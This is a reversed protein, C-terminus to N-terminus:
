SCNCNCARKMCLSFSIINLFAIIVSVVFQISNVAVGVKLEFLCKGFDYKDMHSFIHSIRAADHQGILCFASNRDIKPHRYTGVLEWNSWSIICSVICLIFSAMSLSLHGLYLNPSGFKAALSGVISNLLFVSATWIASYYPCYAPTDCYCWIGAGLIVVSLLIEVLCVRFMGRNEKRPFRDLWLPSYYDSSNSHYTPPPPPAHLPPRRATAYPSPSNSGSNQNITIDLSPASPTAHYTGGNYMRKQNQNGYEYRNM